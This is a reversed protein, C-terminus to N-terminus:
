RRFTREIDRLLAVAADTYCGHQDALSASALVLAAIAIGKIMDVLTLSSGAGVM